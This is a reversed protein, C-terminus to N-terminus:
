SVRVPSNNSLLTLDNSTLLLRTEEHLELVGADIHEEDPLVSGDHFWTKSSRPERQLVLEIGSAKSGGVALIIVVCSGRGLSAM